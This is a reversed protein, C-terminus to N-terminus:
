KYRFTTDTEVDINVDLGSDLDKNVDLGSDIDNYNVDVNFGSDNEVNYIQEAYFPDGGCGVIFCVLSVIGRKM